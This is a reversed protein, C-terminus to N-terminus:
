NAAAPPVNEFQGSDISRQAALALRASVAGEALSTRPVAGERCCRIFDALMAEDGGDHGPARPIERRVIERSDRFRIEITNEADNFSMRGRDGFLIFQRRYDPSFENLLYTASAGSAFRILLAQNDDVDIESDFVCRDPVGKNPVVGRFKEITYLSEECDGRHPCESCRMDPPTPGGFKEGAGAAGFVSLSGLAAVRTPRAGVFWDVLDLTHTAKQLLLSTVHRRCRQWGHFFAYGGYNICDTAQVNVVRGIIGEDLYQRVREFLRAYRLTYGVSVVRDTGAAARLVAEIREDTIELPKEVFVHKGGQLAAACIAGHTEDSSAVVVADLNPMRLLDRYDTVAAIGEGRFEGAREPSRDCVALVDADRRNKLDAILQRGRYGAGVVGLHLKKLM